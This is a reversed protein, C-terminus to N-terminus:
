RFGRRRLVMKVAARVDREDLSVFTNRVVSGSKYRTQITVTKWPRAELIRGTKIDMTLFWGKGLEPDPFHLGIEKRHLAVMKRQFEAFSGELSSAKEGHPPRYCELPPLVFLTKTLLEPKNRILYSEELCAPTCAPMSVIAVASKFIPVIGAKWNDDFHIRAASWREGGNGVSAVVRERDKDIANSLIEEFSALGNGNEDPLRITDAIRLSRLFLYLDERASARDHLQAYDDRIVRERDPADTQSAASAAALNNYYSKFYHNKRASLWRKLWGDAIWSLPVGAAAVAVAYAVRDWSSVLVLVAALFFLPYSRISSYNITM